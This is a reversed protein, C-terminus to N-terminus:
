GKTVWWVSSERCWFAPDLRDKQIIDLVDAVNALIGRHFGQGYAGSFLPM